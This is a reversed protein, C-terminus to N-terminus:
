LWKDIFQELVDKIVTLTVTDKYQISLKDIRDYLSELLVKAIEDPDEIDSNEWETNWSLYEIYDYLWNELAEKTSFRRKYVKDIVTLWKALNFSSSMGSTVSGTLLQILTRQVTEDPVEIKHEENEEQLTQNDVGPRSTKMATEWPTSSSQGEGQVPFLTPSCYNQVPFTRAKEKEKEKEENIEKIRQLVETRVSDGEIEINLSFAELYENIITESKEVTEKQGYTPYTISSSKLTVRRTIKAVYDGSNNVILSLFHPMSMGEEILTHNDTGSFWAAMSHHSHILAQYCDLLDHGDAYTVIDATHDFETYGCTGIDSVYIDKCIATFSGDAFSGEATYFLTGSWENNPFQLCWEKIKRHVLEPIILKYTSPKEVLNLTHIKQEEM